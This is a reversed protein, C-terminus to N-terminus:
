LERQAQDAASALGFLVELFENGQGIFLGDRRFSDITAVAGGGRTGTPRIISCPPLKASIFACPEPMILNKKM